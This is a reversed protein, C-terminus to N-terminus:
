YLIINKVEDPLMYISKLDKTHASITEITEGAAIDIVLLKGDELGVLVHRDGPVVCLCQVPNSTEVTRICQLTKRNWMKVSESGGTYLALNDSSFALVRVNSRHGNLSIKRILKVEKTDTLSVSYLALSNNAM